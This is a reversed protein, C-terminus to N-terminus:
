KIYKDSFLFTMMHTAFIYLFETLIFIIIFTYLIFHINSFGTFQAVCQLGNGFVILILIRAIIM